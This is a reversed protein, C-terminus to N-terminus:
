VQMNMIEQYSTVLKNRVQVTAQFAIGAKQSAMMVDSLNVSEDGATFAQGMARAKNQAEAVQDLQARLADSFTVKTSPAAESVQSVGSLSTLGNAGRMGDPPSAAAKLQAMM